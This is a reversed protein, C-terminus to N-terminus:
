EIRAFVEFSPESGGTSWAVVSKLPEIQVLDARADADLDGLAEVLKLVGQVDVWVLSTVKDPIAPTH